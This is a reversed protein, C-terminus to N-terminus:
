WVVSRANEVVVGLGDWLWWFVLVSVMLWLWLRRLRVTKMRSRMLFGVALCVTYKSLLVLAEVVTALHNPRPQELVGLGPSKTFVWQEYVWYSFVWSLITLVLLVWAVLADHSYPPTEPHQTKDNMRVM